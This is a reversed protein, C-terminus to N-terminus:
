SMVGCTNVCSKSGASVNSFSTADWCIRGRNAGWATRRANFDRLGACFALKLPVPM